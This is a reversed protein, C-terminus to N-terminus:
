KGYEKKLEDITVFQPSYFGDEVNRCIVVGRWWLKGAEGAFPSNYDQYVGACLASIKRGRGTTDIGYHLTHLHGVTCSSHQKALLAGAMNISSLPRGSVGSVLYHAYTIGDVEISGPTGGNYHVVEDYWSDLELDDYSITGELEPQVEIARGIRQEHNGLLTIRHPLRKKAARVTSWLKDQFDNHSEIDARYSRGQFSKKGKDYSCLSPMDATDGLVVVTDPKIDNILKGLWIARDNHHDPHAHPDGVILHTKSM